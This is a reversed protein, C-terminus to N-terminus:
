CSMCGHPHQAPRPSSKPQCTFLYLLSESPSDMQAPKEAFSSEHRASHMRRAAVSRILRAHTSRPRIATQHRRRAPPSTGTPQTGASWPPFAAGRPPRRSTSSSGAMYASAISGSLFGAPERPSVVRIYQMTADSNLWVMTGGLPSSDSPLQQSHAVDRESFQVYEDLKPTLFLKWTGGETGEGLWGTLQITSQGKAPALQAVLADAQLPQKAPIVPNDKNAM